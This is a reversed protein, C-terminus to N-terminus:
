KELDNVEAHYDAYALLLKTDTGREEKWERVAEALKSGALIAKRLAPFDRSLRYLLYGVEDVHDLDESDLAKKMQEDLQEIIQLPNM